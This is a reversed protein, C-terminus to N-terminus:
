GSEAQAPRMDLTPFPTDPGLVHGLKERLAVLSTLVRNWHNASYEGEIPKGIGSLALFQFDSPESITPAISSQVRRAYRPWKATLGKALYKSLYRLAGQNRILRIDVVRGLGARECAGSLLKQPIYRSRVAAHLHPWGSKHNEVVRTFSSLGYNRM